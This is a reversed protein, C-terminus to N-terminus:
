LMGEVVFDALSDTGKTLGKKLTSHFLIFPLKESTGTKKAVEKFCGTQKAEITFLNALHETHNDLAKNVGIKSLEKIIRMYDSEQVRKWIKYSFMGKKYIQYFVLPAPNAIVTALGTLITNILIEKSIKSLPIKPNKIKFKNLIIGTNFRIHTSRNTNNLKKNHITNRLRGTRRYLGKAHIARLQGKRNRGKVM